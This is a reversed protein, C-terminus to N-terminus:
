GGGGFLSIHSDVYIIVVDSIIPITTRVLSPRNQPCSKEIHIRIAICLDFFNDFESANSIDRIKQTDRVPPLGEM